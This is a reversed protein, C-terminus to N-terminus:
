FVVNPELEIAKILLVKVDTIRIEEIWKFLLFDYYMIKTITNRDHQISRNLINLLVLLDCFVLM